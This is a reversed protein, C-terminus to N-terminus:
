YFSYFVLCSSVTATFFYVTTFNYHNNLFLILHKMLKCFDCIILITCKVHNTTFTCLNFKIQNKLSLDYVLLSCLLCPWTQITFYLIDGWDIGVYVSPFLNSLCFVLIFGTCQAYSYISLLGVRLRSLHSVLNGM